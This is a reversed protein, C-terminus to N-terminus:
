LEHPGQAFGAKDLGSLAPAVNLEAAPLRVSGNGGERNGDVCAPVDLLAVKRPMRRLASM